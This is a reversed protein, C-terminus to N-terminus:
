VGSLFQGQTMDQGLPPPYITGHGSFGCKEKWLVRDGGAGWPWTKRLFKSIRVQTIIIRIRQFSYPHLKGSVNLNNPCAIVIVLQNPTVQTHLPSIARNYIEPVVIQPQQNSRWHHPNRYLWSLVGLFTSVATWHEWIGNKPIQRIKQYNLECTIFFHKVSNPFQLFRFPDHFDLTTEQM